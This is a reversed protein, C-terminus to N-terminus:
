STRVLRVPVSYPGTESTGPNQTMNACGSVGVIYTRIVNGGLLEVFLRVYGVVKLTQSQKYLTTGSCTFYNPDCVDFIPCTIVQHSTDSVTGDPHQYQGVGQYQDASSLPISGNKTILNTIGQITYNTLAAPTDSKPASQSGCYNASAGSCEAINTAYQQDAGSSGSMTMGYFSRVGLNNATSADAVTLNTRLGIHALADATVRGASDVLVFGSQCAGCVTASRGAAVVTNPIFWPKACKTAVANPSAEAVADVRILRSNYGFVRAFYTPQAHTLDVTVRRNPVDIAVTVEAATVATGMINNQTATQVAHLEGTAPQPATCESVFTFAGALAAADAARQASTRASFMMGVDVALALFGVLLILSGAVTILVWGEQRSLDSM